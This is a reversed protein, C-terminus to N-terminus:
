YYDEVVPWCECEEPTELETEAYDDDLFPLDKVLAVSAGPSVFCIEARCSALYEASVLKFYNDKWTNQLLFWIKGSVVERHAGILVLAHLSPKNSPITKSISYQVFEQDEVEYDFVKGTHFAKEVRFNAVLAPENQRTFRDYVLNAVAEFEAVNVSKKPITFSILFDEDVHPDKGTVTHLFPRSGLTSTGTNIFLLLQDRTFIDRIYNSVDLMKHNCSNTRLCQLYHQLVAVAHMFSVGAKQRRIVLYGHKSMAADIFFVSQYSKLWAFEDPLKKLFKDFEDAFTTADRRKEMQYKGPSWRYDGSMLRKLRNQVSEDLDEYVLDLEKEEIFSKAPGCRDEASISTQGKLTKYGEENDASSLFSNSSAVTLVTVPSPAKAGDGVDIDTIVSLGTTIAKNEDTSMSIMISNGKACHQKCPIVVMSQSNLRTTALTSFEFRFGNHNLTPCSGTM